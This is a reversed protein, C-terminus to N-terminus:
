SAGAPRRHKSARTGRAGTRRVTRQRAIGGARRGAMTGPRHGPPRARSRSPLLAAVLSGFFGGIM